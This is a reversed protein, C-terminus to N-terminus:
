RLRTLTGNLQLERIHERARTPAPCAPSRPQPSTAPCPAAPAKCPKWSPPSPPPGLAALAEATAEDLGTM